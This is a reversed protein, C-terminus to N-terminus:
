QCEQTQPQFSFISKRDTQGNIDTCDVTSPECKYYTEVCAYDRSDKNERGGFYTEGQQCQDQIESCSQGSQFNPKRVQQHAEQNAPNPTSCSALVILSIVTFVKLM